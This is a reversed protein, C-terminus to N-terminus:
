ILYVYHRSIYKKHTKTTDLNLLNIFVQVFYIPCGTYIRRYLMGLDKGLYLHKINCVLIMLVSLQMKM